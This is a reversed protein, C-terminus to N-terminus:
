PDDHHFISIFSPPHVYFGLLRAVTCYCPSHFREDSVEEEEEEEEEGKLEKIFPPWILIEVGRFNGEAAAGERRRGSEERGAQRCGVVSGYM